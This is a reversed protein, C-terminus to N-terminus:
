IIMPSLAMRYSLLFTNLCELLTLLQSAPQSLPVSDAPMRSGGYELAVQEKKSAKAQMCTQLSCASLGVQSIFTRAKEERACFIKKSSLWHWNM